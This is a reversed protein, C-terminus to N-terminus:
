RSSLCSLAEDDVKTEEDGSSKAKSISYDLSDIECMTLDCRINYKCRYNGKVQCFLANRKVMKQQLLKTKFYM